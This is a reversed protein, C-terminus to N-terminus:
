KGAVMEDDEAMAVPAPAVDEPLEPILGWGEQFEQESKAKAAMAAKTVASQAPADPMAEGESWAMEYETKEM